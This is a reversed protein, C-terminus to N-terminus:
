RVDLKNFNADLLRFFTITSNIQSVVSTMLMCKHAMGDVENKARLFTFTLNSHFFFLAIRLVFPIKHKNLLLM